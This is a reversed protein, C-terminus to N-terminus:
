VKEIHYSTNFFFSDILEIFNLNEHIAGPVGRPSGHPANAGGSM